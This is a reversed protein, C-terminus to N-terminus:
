FSSNTMVRNLCTKTSTATANGPTDNITAILTLMYPLIAVFDIINMIDRIFAWKSPSSLFRITLEFCFWIVCVTEVCYFPDHLSERNAGTTDDWEFTPLTEICFIFTSLVVVFVSIFALIRAPTSSEPYEVFLWIKRQLLNDPLFKPIDHGLGEEELFKHLVRRGLGYFVIEDEM